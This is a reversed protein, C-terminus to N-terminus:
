RLNVSDFFPAPRGFPVFAKLALSKSCTEAAPFTGTGYVRALVEDLCWGPGSGSPIAFHDLAGCSVVGEDDFGEALNARGAGDPNHGNRFHV